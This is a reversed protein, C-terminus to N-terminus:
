EAGSHIITALGESNRRHLEGALIKCCRDCVLITDLRGDYESAVKKENDHDPCFHNGCYHCPYANMQLAMAEEMREM